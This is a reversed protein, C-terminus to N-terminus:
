RADWYNLADRILEAHDPEYCFGIANDDRDGIRFHGAVSPDPRAAFVQGYADIFEFKYPGGATM